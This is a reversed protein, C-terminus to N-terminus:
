RLNHVPTKPRLDALATALEDSRFPKTLRPIDADVGDNEAYASVLLASLQPQETALIQILQTGTM